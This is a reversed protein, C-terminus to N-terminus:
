NTNKPLKVTFTTGAHPRSYATITGKFDVEVYQKVLALGIGLSRVSKTTHFPEFIKTINESSIGGGWDQVKITLWKNDDLFKVSVRSAQQNLPTDYAQMANTVLNAIIQQFKIPDGLLKRGKPVTPLQLNVHKQRAMPQLILRLQNFQASISFLSQQGHFSIQQRAAEVYRRMTLINRRAKRIAPPSHEALELQLLAATLPNSIEHLISASYRGLEAFRRLEQLHLETLNIM